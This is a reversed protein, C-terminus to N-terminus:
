DHAKIARYRNIAASFQLTDSKFRLRILIPTAQLAAAITSSALMTVVGCTIRAYQSAANGLRQFHGFSLCGHIRKAFRHTHERKVRPVPERKQKREYATKSQRRM